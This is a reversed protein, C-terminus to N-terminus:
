AKIGLMRKWWPLKSSWKKRMKAEFKELHKIYAGLEETHLRRATDRLYLNLEAGTAFTKEKQEIETYVTIMAQDIVHDPIGLKKLWKIQVEVSPSAEDKYPEHLAKFDM